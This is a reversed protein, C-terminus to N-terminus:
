LRPQTCVERDGQMWAVRTFSGVPRYGARVCLRYAHGRPVSIVKEAHAVQPSIDSWNGAAFYYAVGSENKMYCAIGTEAVTQEAVATCVAALSFTIGAPDDVLAVAATVDVTYGNDVFQVDISAWAVQASAANVSTLTTLALLLLRVRKM